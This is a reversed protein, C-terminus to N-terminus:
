PAKIDDLDIGNKALEVKVTNVNQMIERAITIELYCQARYERKKNLMRGHQEDSMRAYRERSRANKAALMCTEDCYRQSSSRPMYERECVNCTKPTPMDANEMTKVALQSVYRGTM